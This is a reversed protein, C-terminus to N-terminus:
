TAVGCMEPDWGGMGSKALSVRRVDDEGAGRGSGISNLAKPLPLGVGIASRGVM